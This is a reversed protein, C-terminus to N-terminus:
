ARKKNTKVGKLGKNWVKRGKNSESIKLNHQISNHIKKTIPNNMNESYTVWRLNDVNNNFKNGDIHDVCPKNEPNPIFLEAVLRHVFKSRIIYYTNFMTPQQIIGDIRINGLNSVEWLHGNSQKRCIKNVRTDKYVKWIEEM